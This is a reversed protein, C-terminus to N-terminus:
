THQKAEGAKPQQSMQKRLFIQSENLILVFETVQYNEKYRKSEAYPM